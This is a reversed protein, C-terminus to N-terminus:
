VILEAKSSTYCFCDGDATTGVCNQVDECAAGSLPALRLAGPIAEALEQWAVGWSTNSVTANAKLSKARLSKAQLWAKHFTDVTSNTLSLNSGATTMSMVIPDALRKNAPSAYGVGPQAVSWFDMSVHGFNLGLSWILLWGEKACWQQLATGASTGFLAPFAAILFKIAKPYRLETMPMAEWYHILDPGTLLPARDWPALMRCLVRSMTTNWYKENTLFLHDFHQVTGLNSVGQYDCDPNYAAPWHGRSSGRFPDESSETWNCMATWGGTDFANVVSSEGALTQAFVATIPGYIESGSDIKHLNMICYPAREQAEAMTQPSGTHLFPRMGYIKTEVGDQISFWGKGGHFSFNARISAEWNSEFFPESVGERLDMGGREFSSSFGSAIEAVSVERRIRAALAEASLTDAESPSLAGCAQLENRMERSALRALFASASAASRQRAHDAVREVLNHQWETQTAYGSLAFM